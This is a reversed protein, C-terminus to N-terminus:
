LRAKKLIARGTSNIHWREFGGPGESGDSESIAMHRLLAFFTKPALCVLGVMVAKGEKVMEADDHEGSDTLDRMMKLVELQRLTLPPYVETIAALIPNKEVWTDVDTKIRERPIVRACLDPM